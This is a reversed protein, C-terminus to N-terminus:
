RYIRNAMEDGLHTREYQDVMNRGIVVITEMDTILAKRIKYNM